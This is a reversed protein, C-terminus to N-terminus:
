RTAAILEVALKPDRIEYLGNRFNNSDKRVKDLLKDVIPISLKYLNGSGEIENPLDAGPHANPSVKEVIFKSALYYSKPSKGEGAILWVTVGALGDVAKRTVVRPRPISTSSFGREEANHYAIFHRM